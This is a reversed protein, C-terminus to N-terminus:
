GLISLKITLDSSCLVHAIQADEARTTFDEHKSGFATKISSITSDIVDLVDVKLLGAELATATALDKCMLGPFLLLSLRIVSKICDHIKGDKLGVEIDVFAYRSSDRSEERQLVSHRDIISISEKIKDWLSM